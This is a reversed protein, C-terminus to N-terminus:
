ERSPRPRKKARAEGVGSGYAVAGGAMLTAGARRFFKRRNISNSM